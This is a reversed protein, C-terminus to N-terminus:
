SIRCKVRKLLACYECARTFTPRRRRRRCCSLCYIVITIVNLARCETVPVHEFSSM